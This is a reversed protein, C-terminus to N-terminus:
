QNSKIKLVNCQCSLIRRWGLSEIKTKAPSLRYFREYSFIQTPLFYFIAIPQYTYAFFTSIIGRLLDSYFTSKASVFRSFILHFVQSYAPVKANFHIGSDHFSTNMNFRNSLSLKIAVQRQSNDEGSARM